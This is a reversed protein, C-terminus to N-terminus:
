EYDHRPRAAQALREYYDEYRRVVQGIEFHEEVRLRARGGIAARQEPDLALLEDFAVALAPMDGSRVIRGTDGVITASDGVDTVACPIGCAMAEGLVNPFAESFSSSALVDLSAMLRPIDDRQGLWHCVDFVGARHAAAVLEGNGADIGTGVLVFHVGPRSRLLLGAAALFGAHNKQPDHRGVVGVLPTDVALNLENRVAHRAESDPRFRSLDFGNPIVEMKDGSYGRRVHVDRAADACCLIGTPLWRSVTANLRAVLRTARKSKDRDLNTNHICWAITRVGALRAAISGLLDAHYMWTHVLDTKTERLRRALAAVALPSPAHRNMGMAEVPIGLAQIRPGIEGLTTLSFVRLSFRSRDIRELLKLLMMEAGGTSLGTIVISVRLGQGKTAVYTSM